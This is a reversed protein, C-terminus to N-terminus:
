GCANKTWWAVVQAYQIKAETTIPHLGDPYRNSPTQNLMGRYGTGFADFGMFKIQPSANAVKILELNWVYASLSSYHRANDGVQEDQRHNLGVLVICNSAKLASAVSAKMNAVLANWYADRNQSPLNQWTSLDNAGLEIAIRNATSARAKSFSGQAKHDSWTSGGTANVTGNQGQSYYTFYCLADGAGYGSRSSISDGIYYHGPKPDTAGTMCTSPPTLTVAAVPTSPLITLALASAFAM